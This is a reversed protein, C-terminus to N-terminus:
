IPSRKPSTRRSRRSRRSPRCPGPTRRIMELMKRGIEEAEAFRGRDALESLADGYARAPVPVTYGMRQSVEAYHREFAPLGGEAFLAIPDAIRFGAFIAQLGEYTSIYPITGHEEDPFRKFQWRVHPLKAEELAASLKWAGGLMTGGENAMSMYIDAQLDQHAAFFPAAAKVLVQM